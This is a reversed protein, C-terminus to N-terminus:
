YTGPTMVAWGPHAALRREMSRFTQESRRLNGYVEGGTSEWGLVGIHGTYGRRDLAGLLVFNDMEGEDLPWITAAGGWSLPSLRCGAINVQRLLPWLADLRQELAKEQNAYWHYGNFM